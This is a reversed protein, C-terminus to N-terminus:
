DKKQSAYSNYFSNFSKHNSMEARQEMKKKLIEYDTQGGEKELAQRELFTLYKIGSKPIKDVKYKTTLKKGLTVYDDSSDSSSDYARRKDSRKVTRTTRVGKDLVIPRSIPKRENINRLDDFNDRNMEIHRQFKTKSPYDSIARDRNAMRNGKKDYVYYSVKAVIEKERKANAKKRAM